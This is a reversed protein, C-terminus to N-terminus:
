RFSTNSPVIIFHFHPPTRLSVPKVL